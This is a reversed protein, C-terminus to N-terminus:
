LVHVHMTKLMTILNMYMYYCLDTSTSTSDDSTICMCVHVYMLICYYNCTTCYMYYLVHICYMYLLKGTIIAGASMVTENIIPTTVVCRYTGFDSFDVPDFVLTSNIEGVLDDFQAEMMQWQYEPPPFSDAECTLMVLENDDTYVNMPELLIEPSIYLTVSAIDFGADNFVVCTYDGGSSGIVNDLTLTDNDFALVNYLSNPLDSTDVSSLGGNVWYFTNNPGGRANCNFTVDTNRDATMQQPDVM